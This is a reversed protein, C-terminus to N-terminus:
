HNGAELTMQSSNATVTIEAGCIVRQEFGGALMSDGEQYGAKNKDYVELKDGSVKWGTRLLEDVGEETALNGWLEKQVRRRRRLGALQALCIASMM